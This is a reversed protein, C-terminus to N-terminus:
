ALAIERLGFRRFVFDKVLCTTGIVQGVPSKVKSGYAQESRLFRVDIANRFGCQEFAVTGTAPACRAGARNRAPVGYTTDIEIAWVGRLADSAVFNFFFRARPLGFAAQDDGRTMDLDGSSDNSEFRPFVNDIFGTVRLEAGWTPTLRLFTMMLVMGREADGSRKLIASSHIVLQILLLYM